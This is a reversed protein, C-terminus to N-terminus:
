EQSDSFVMVGLDSIDRRPTDPVDEKVIPNGDEIVMTMSVPRFLSWRSRIENIVSGEFYRYFLLCALTNIVLNFFLSLLIFYVVDWFGNNNVAILVYFFAAVIPVVMKYLTMKVGDYIRFDKYKTSIRVNLSMFISFTMVILPIYLMLSFLYVPVDSLIDFTMWSPNMSIYIWIFLGAMFSLRMTSAVEKWPISARNLNADIEINRTDLDGSISFLFSVIREPLSLSSKINAYEMSALVPYFIAKQFVSVLALVGIIGVAISMYALIWSMDVTLLLMGIIVLTILALVYVKRYMLCYFIGVMALPSSAAIASFFISVSYASLIQLAVIAFCFSLLFSILLLRDISSLISIHERESIVM